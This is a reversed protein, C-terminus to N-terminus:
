VGGEITGNQHRCEDANVQTPPITRPIGHEPADNGVEDEDVRQIEGRGPVTRRHLEHQQEISGDRHLMHKLGEQSQDSRRSFRSYIRTSRTRTQLRDRRIRSSEQRGEGHQKHRDHRGAQGAFSEFFSIVISVVCALAATLVRDGETPRDGVDM